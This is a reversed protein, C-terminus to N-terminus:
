RHMTEVDQQLTSGYHPQVSVVDYQKEKLAAPWLTSSKVCPKGPNAFVFPLSTGCDVHWQVDGDLLGPLTDWTLSNGILYYSKTAPEEARLGGVQMAFCIAVFCCNLIRATM